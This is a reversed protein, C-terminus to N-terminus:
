PAEEHYVSRLIAFRDARRAMLPFHEGIMIGPVNTRIPRFPGCIDSPANPKLDWTDLQSPGGVLVLQICAKAGSRRVAGAHQLQALETVSLGAALGGVRLFDRRSLGEDSEVGFKGKPRLMALGGN